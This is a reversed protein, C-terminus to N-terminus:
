KDEPLDQSPSGPPLLGPLHQQFAQRLLEVRVDFTMNRACAYGQLVLRKRLTADTQVRQIAETLAPIDAHAILLGNQKNDIMNPIGGVATAIVPAGAAWAEIIMRPTGEYHGHSPLVVIDAQRYQSWLVDGIPLGGLFEVHADLKLERTLDQLTALYDGIGAIKLTIAQGEDILIRVARILDQLGKSKIIRTAVFLVCPDNTCADDREHIDSENIFSHKIVVKPADSPSYTDHLHSSVALLLKAHAALKKEVSSHYMRALRKHIPRHVIVGPPDRLSGGMDVYFPTSTSIAALGAQFGIASIHYVQVFETQSVLRRIISRSRAYTFARQLAHRSTFGRLLLPRLSSDLPVMTDDLPKNYEPLVVITGPIVEGYTRLYGNWISPVYVQGNHLTGDSQTFIVHHFPGKAEDAYLPLAAQNTKTKIATAATAM